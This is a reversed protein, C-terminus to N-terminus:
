LVSLDNVPVWGTTGDDRQVERWNGNDDIIRVRTGAPASGASRFQPRPGERLTTPRRVIAVDDSEVVAQAVLLLASAVALGGGITLITLRRWPLWLGLWFVANGVLLTWAAFGRPLLAVWPAFADAATLPADPTALSGKAANPDLKARVIELNNLVDEDSPNLRLAREYAIVAEILQDSKAYANGLNFLLDSNDIGRALLSEYLAIAGRLDDNLARENAATFDAAAEPPAALALMLILPSM